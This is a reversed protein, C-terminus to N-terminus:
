LTVGLESEVLSKLEEVSEIVELNRYAVNGAADILVIGPLGRVPMGDIVGWEGAPDALLPYTVGSDAVLELAAEPQVDQWDIGILPVEDAYQEHFDQLVPMEKRCSTCWSAWLNIVLPGRLASLDVDDGGGLCGLTLAPLGGDVAEGSGPECPEVGAESKLERLRPTDVDVNSGPPVTDPYDPPERTCGTLLAAALLLAALIRM